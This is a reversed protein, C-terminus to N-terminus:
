LPLGLPCLGESGSRGGSATREVDVGPGAEVARAAQEDNVDVAKSIGAMEVGEAKVEEAKVEEAKVEEVKIEGIKIEAVRIEELKVELQTRVEESNVGPAGCQELAAGVMGRWKLHGDVGDCAMDEVGAVDVPRLGAVGWNAGSVRALVALVYDNTGYGNVVRGAAVRRAAAWPAPDAPVPSGFLFVDHVLGLTQSPPLSALHQLAEFIVLSGLSYGVLTVPRTGLVREALLIGLAKGTKIALSRATM